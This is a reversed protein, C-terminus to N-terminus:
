RYAETGATIRSTMSHAHAATVKNDLYCTPLTASRNLANTQLVSPSIDSTPEFGM